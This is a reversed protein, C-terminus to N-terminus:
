RWLETGRHHVEMAQSGSSLEQKSEDMDVEMDNKRCSEYDQAETPENRVVAKRKKQSGGGSSM